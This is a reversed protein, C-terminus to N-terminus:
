CFCSLWELSLSCNLVRVQFRWVTRSIEVASVIKVTTVTENLLSLLEWRGGTGKTLGAHRKKEKRQPFHCWNQQDKRWSGMEGVREDHYHKGNAVGGVM